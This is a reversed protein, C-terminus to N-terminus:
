RYAFPPRESIRRVRAQQAQEAEPDYPVGGATRVEGNAFTTLRPEGTQGRKFLERGILKGDPSIRAHVFVSPTNLYLVSLNNAGDVTAEPKRFMLSEGLSFTRLIRGTKGDEVEVYLESKNGNSFTLVRYERTTDSGPVGIKQAYLARASSVAFSIRNSSYVTEGDDPMRVSAYGGYRGLTTVRFSQSLDVTRSVSRGAPVNVANFGESGRFTSLPVGRDNKINFDLWSQRSNGHLFLDRGARNTITITVMVPENAVYDRKSMTAKVEIQASLSSALAAMGLCVTTM